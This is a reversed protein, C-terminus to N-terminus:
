DEPGGFSDGGAPGAGTKKQLWQRMTPWDILAKLIEVVCETDLLGLLDCEVDAVRYNTQLCLVAAQYSGGMDFTLTQKQPDYEAGSWHKWFDIAVEYLRRYDPAVDCLHWRGDEGLRAVAPLAIKQPDNEAIDVDTAFAAPACWRQKDLLEVWHGDIMSDRQLDRPAPLQNKKHGVWIPPADDALLAPPIQRWTQENKHYGLGDVREDAVICGQQGDPGGTLVDRALPKRECAYGLGWAAMQGPKSARTDKVGSVFYLFGNAM